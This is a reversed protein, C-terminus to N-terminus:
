QIYGLEEAITLCESTLDECAIDAFGDDWCLEEDFNNILKGKGQPHDGIIDIDESDKTNDFYVYGCTQNYFKKYEISSQYYENTTDLMEFTLEEVYNLEDEESYPDETLTYTIKEYEQGTDFNYLMWYGSGAELVNGQGDHMGVPYVVYIFEQGQSLAEESAEPCKLYLSIKNNAEDLEEATFEIDVNYDQGESIFHISYSLIFYGEGITIEIDEASGSWLAQWATDLVIKHLAISSVALFTIGLYSLSAQFHNAVHKFSKFIGTEQALLDNFELTDLSPIGYENLVNELDTNADSEENVEQAETVGEDQIVSSDDNVSDTGQLCSSFVFIGLVVALILLFKLLNFREKKM